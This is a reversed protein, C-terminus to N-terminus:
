KFVPMIKDKYSKTLENYDFEMDEIIRDEEPISYVDKGIAYLTLKTNTYIQEPTITINGIFGASQLSKMEMKEEPITQCSKILGFLAKVCREKPLISFQENNIVSIDVQYNGPVFKQLSSENEYYFVIEHDKEGINPLKIMSIVATENKKLKLKTNQFEWRPKLIKKRIDVDLEKSEWLEVTQLKQSGDLLTTMIKSEGLYNEHEYTVVGNLAVPFKENLEGKENTTGIICSEDDVTYMVNVNPIPKKNYKNIINISINGSNRKDRDCLMSTTDFSIEELQVSSANMVENNRINAEIAFRFVYGKNNFASPDTISIMVPYSIDYVTNYRQIGFNFLPEYISEPGILGGKSNVNFYIPWNAFYDFNIAMTSYGTIPLIMMDFTSQVSNSYEGEPVIVRDFNLSNQVKVYPIYTQLMSQINEQVNKSQWYTGHSEFDSASMPPLKLNDIGAFSSMLELTLGEMFGLDTEMNTLNTALDYIRKFNFPIKIYYKELEAKNEGKKIEVPMTLLVRVDNDTIRTFADIEDTNTIQFGLKSFANFNKLCSNINDNVYRDMQSEISLDEKVFETNEGRYLPPRLSDFSCTTCENSSKLYHWYAPKIDTGPIFELANSKTPNQPIIKLSDTYIYGGKNGLDYFGTRVVEDICQEIFKSVPEAFNPVETIIPEALELRRESVNTKVYVIVSTSLLLIIGIIIFITVQGKKMM